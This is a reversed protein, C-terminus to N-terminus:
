AKRVDITVAAPDVRGVSGLSPLAPMVVQVTIGPDRSHDGLEGSLMGALQIAKVGVNAVASWGRADLEPAEEIRDMLRTARATMDATLKAVQTQAPILSAKTIDEERTSVINSRPAPSRLAPILVENRYRALTPRSLGSIEELVKFKAGAILGEIVASRTLAPLSDVAYIQSRVSSM